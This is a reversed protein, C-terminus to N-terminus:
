LTAMVERWDILDANYVVDWLNKGVVSALLRVYNPGKANKTFYAAQAKDVCKQGGCIAIMFADSMRDERLCVDLATEFRGLTLARTVERDAASESGSYIQFPNNTKAGKTASLDSLFSDGDGTSDFFGSLRNAKAGNVLESKKTGDEDKSADSALDADHSFGLYDVLEKRPNASILTEIVKWDEREEGSDAKAIKSQCIGAFDAQKLATEFSETATGVGSDIAFHSIRVRSRRSSADVPGFSVVKGGFAFSAGVPREM